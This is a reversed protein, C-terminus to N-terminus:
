HEVYERRRLVRVVVKGFSGTGLVEQQEYQKKKAFSPPQSLIKDKIGLHVM